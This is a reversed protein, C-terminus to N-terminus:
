VVQPYKYIGLVTAMHRSIESDLGGIVAVMNKQKDCKFNPVTHKRTSLLNLTNQYTMRENLYSNYIQFGLSVNPLIEPNDNIEKVAYVLSLVHQYSKPKGSFSSNFLTYSLYQIRCPPTSQSCSM